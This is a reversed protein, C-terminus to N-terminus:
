ELPVTVATRYKHYARLNDAAGYGLILEISTDSKGIYEDSAVEFELVTVGGSESMAYSLAAASKSSAHGHGKGDEVGFTAETGKVFGIFIVAGDMKMGGIGASVWGTTKASVAVSLVNGTRNLYLLMEGNGTASAYSYENSGIVGDATPKVDTIGLSGDSAYVGVFVTLSFIIVFRTKKVM